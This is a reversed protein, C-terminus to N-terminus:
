EWPAHLLSYSMQMFCQARFYRDPFTSEASSQAMDGGRNRAILMGIDKDSRDYLPWGLPLHARDRFDEVLVFKARRLGYGAEDARDPLDAVLEAEVDSKAMRQGVPM